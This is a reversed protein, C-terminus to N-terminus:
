EISLIGTERKNISIKKGSETKTWKNEKERKRETCRELVEEVQEIKM